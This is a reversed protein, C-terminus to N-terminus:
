QGLSVSAEQIVPFNARLLFSVGKGVIVDRLLVVLHRECSPPLLVIGPGIVDSDRLSRNWAVKLVVPPTWFPPKSALEQRLLCFIYRGCGIEKDDTHRDAGGVTASMGETNGALKRENKERCEMCVIEILCFSADPDDCRQRRSLARHLKALRCIERRRCDLKDIHSTCGIM